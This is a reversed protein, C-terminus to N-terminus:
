RRDPKLVVLRHDPGALPYAADVRWPSPPGADLDDGTNRFLFVVGGPSVLPQIQRLLRGGVRVGRVSVVDAKGLLERRTRGSGRIQM